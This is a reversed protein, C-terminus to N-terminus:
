QKKTTSRPHEVAGDLAVFGRGGSQSIGTRGGTAGYVGSYGAGAGAV